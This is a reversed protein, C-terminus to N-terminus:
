FMDRCFHFGMTIWCVRQQKSCSKLYWYEIIDICMSVLSWVLCHLEIDTAIRKENYSLLISWYVVLKGINYGDLLNDFDTNPWYKCNPSRFNFEKMTMSARNSIAHIFSCLGKVVLAFKTKCTFLYATGMKRIIFYVTIHATTLNDDHM